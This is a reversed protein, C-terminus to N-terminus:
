QEDGLEPWEERARRQLEALGRRIRGDVAGTKLGLQRGIQQLTWGLRFRLSLLRRLEPETQELQREIWRLRLETESHHDDAEPSRRSHQRLVGQQQRERRLWDWAVNRLVVRSWRALYTGDATEPMRRIARLMAEQVLDLCTSEDRGTFARAARFMPEFFQDYYIRVAEANGERIGRTAALWDTAEACSPRDASGGSEPQAAPLQPATPGDAARPGSPSRKGAPNSVRIRTATAM